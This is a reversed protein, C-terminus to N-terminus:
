PVRTVSFHRELPVAAKSRTAQDAEERDLLFDAAALAGADGNARYRIQRELRQMERGSESAWTVQYAQWRM